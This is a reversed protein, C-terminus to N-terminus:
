ATATDTRYSLLRGAGAGTHRGHDVTVQGNVIVWDIGTPEQKPDDYTATDIVTDPDFIVLDAHQGLAVRGRDVLGFRDCSLSTMRRVAEELTLVGRKRVYEGLVRPFTGFLRPHPRGKLDPIGDSGVMMLPHRLNTEIDAEDIIFHICITRDGKEATLIRRVITEIPTSEESAIDVLMRGEYEPFAPCSALRIVEALPVSVNDLNFYEIMRGSGATYPYVDLTVDAGEGNAKDVLALSHDVLGWNPQGAAKHHSIHVLCGSSRGVTIAEEVAQLLRDGENRMHTAYIGGAEGAPTALEIVEDTKSWRGPVYILGTSFGCAGEAMAQEVFGRMTALEEPTPDRKENGLVAQRMTNHGILTIANAAPKRAHVAQRYGEVGTWDGGLKGLLGDSSQQGPRNPVASFGCNGVVLSTCGQAVKFELGPYALLAGDDHTHTDVFGPSLVRGNGNLETTNAAASTVTGVETIRGGEVAVDGDTAPGGTGDVIRVNRIVLDAPM